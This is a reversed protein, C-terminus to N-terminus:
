KLFFLLFSVNIYISIYIYIPGFKGSSNMETDRDMKTFAGGPYKPIETDRDMDDMRQVM